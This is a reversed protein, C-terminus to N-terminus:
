VYFPSLAINVPAYLLICESTQTAEPSSTCPTKGVEELATRTNGNTRASGNILLAKM